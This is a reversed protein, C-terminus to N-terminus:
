NSDKPFDLQNEPAANQFINLLNASTYIEKIIPFDSMDVQFRMANYVQPILLIEFLGPNNFPFNAFSIAKIRVEVKDFVDKIWHQIWSIKQEESTRMNRSLYKLTSLNNLAHLDTALLYTLEKCLKIDKIDKPFFSPSPYLRELEELIFMSQVYIEGNIELAPLRGQPNIKLFKKSNQENELLNIPVVKYELNKLNLAIRARYSTSSRYYSYLKLM